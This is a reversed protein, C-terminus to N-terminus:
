YFLNEQFNGTLLVLGKVYNWKIFVFKENISKKNYNQILKFKLVLVHSLFVQLTPHPPLPCNFNVKFFMEKLNSYSSKM